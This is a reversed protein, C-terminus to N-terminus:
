WRRRLAPSPQWADAAAAMQGPLQQKRELRQRMSGRPADPSAPKVHWHCLGKKLLTDPLAERLTLAALSRDADYGEPWALHETAKTSAHGHDYDRALGITLVFERTECDDGEGSAAAAAADGEQAEPAEEGGRPTTAQTQFEIRPQATSERPALSQLQRARQAPEVRPISVRCAIPSLHTLTRATDETRTVSIYRHAELNERKFIDVAGYKKLVQLISHREAFTAPAPSIMIRISRSALRSNLGRFPAPVM